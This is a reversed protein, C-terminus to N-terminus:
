NLHNLKRVFDHFSKYKTKEELELPPYAQDVSGGPFTKTAHSKIPLNITPIAVIRSTKKGYRCHFFYCIILLSLLTNKCFADFELSEKLM